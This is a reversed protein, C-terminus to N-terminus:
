PWGKPPTYIERKKNRSNGWGREKVEEQGFPLAPTIKESLQSIIM